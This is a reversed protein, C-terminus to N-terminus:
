FGDNKKKIVPLRERKASWDKQRGFGRSRCFLIEAVIPAPTFSESKKYTNLYLLM